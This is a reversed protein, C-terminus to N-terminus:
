RVKSVPFKANKWNSVGSDVSFRDSDVFRPDSNNACADNLAANPGSNNSWSGEFDYGM